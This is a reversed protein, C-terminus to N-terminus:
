PSGFYSIAYTQPHPHEYTRSLLDTCTLSPGIRLWVVAISPFLGNSVARGSSSRHTLFPSLSSSQTCTYGGRQSGLPWLTTFHIHSWLRSSTPVLQPHTFSLFDTAPRPYTWYTSFTNCSLWWLWWYGFSCRAGHLSMDWIEWSTLVQNCEKNLM